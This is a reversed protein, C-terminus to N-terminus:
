VKSNELNKRTFYNVSLWVLHLDDIFMLKWSEWNFKLKSKSQAMRFYIYMTQTDTKLLTSTSDKIGLRKSGRVGNKGCMAEDNKRDSWIRQGQQPFVNWLVVNSGDHTVTLITNLYIHLTLKEGWNKPHLDSLEVKADDSWLVKNWINAADGLPIITFKLKVKQPKRKFNTKWKGSGTKSMSSTKNLNQENTKRISTVLTRLYVDVCIHKCCVTHRHKCLKHFPHRVM